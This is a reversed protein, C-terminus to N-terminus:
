NEGIMCILVCSAAASAGLVAPGIRTTVFPVPSSILDSSSSSSRTVSRIVLNFPYRKSRLQSVIV